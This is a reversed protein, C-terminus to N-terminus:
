TKTITMLNQGNTSNFAARSRRNVARGSGFIGPTEEFFVSTGRASKELFLAAAPHRVPIVSSVAKFM